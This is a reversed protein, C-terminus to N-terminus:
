SSLHCLDPSDSNPYLGPLYKCSGIKFFRDCVL